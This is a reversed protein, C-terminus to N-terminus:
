DLKIGAQTIIKKFEDIEKAVFLGFEEPQNGSAIIGDTVLRDNVEKSKLIKTIEM